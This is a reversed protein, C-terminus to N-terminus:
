FYSQIFFSELEIKTFLSKLRSNVFFSIFENKVFLLKFM